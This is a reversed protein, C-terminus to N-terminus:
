STGERESINIGTPIINPNEITTNAIRNIFRFFYYKEKEKKELIIQYCINIATIYEL